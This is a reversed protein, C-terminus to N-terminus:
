PAYIITIVQNFQEGSSISAIVEIIYIGDELQITTEFTGYISVEVFSDGISVAADISTEGSIIISATDVIVESQEPSTIKLFFGDRDGHFMPPLEPLPTAEAEDSPATETKGREPTMASVDPTAQFPENGKRVLLKVTPKFIIKDTETVAVSKQADFDFTVITTENARVEIPRVLRIIGSPVSAETEQGDVTVLVSTVHMRIQNYTTAPVNAEGLIDEIGAVEILDFTKEGELLVQWNSDDEDAANDTRVSAEILNSTVIISTINKNRQDTVGIMITGTPVESITTSTPAESIEDGGCAGLLPVALLLVLSVLTIFIDKMVMERIKRNDIIIDATNKELLIRKIILSPM